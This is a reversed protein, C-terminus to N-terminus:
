DKLMEKVIAECHIKSTDLVSLTSFDSQSLMLPLETCGLLVGDIKHDNRYKEVLAVLKKKDNSDVIGDELKPFICSHVVDIDEGVPLIPEINYQPFIKDYLGSTMTFKTGLILVKKLKLSQAKKCAADVISLIPIPSLTKLRDYVIHPTNSAVAAFDAGAAYLNEIKSSLMKAVGDYDNKSMYDLMETMDISEILFDPYSGDNQAARYGEIIYRYYDHTSAPGVGGILGLKKM